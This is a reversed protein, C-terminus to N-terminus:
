LWSMKLIQPQTSDQPRHMPLTMYHLFVIWEFNYDSKVNLKIGGCGRYNMVLPRYGNRMGDLMSYKVYNDSSSGTIGSLFLLVPADDKDCEAPLNAPWDLALVGGDDLTLLERVDTSILAKITFMGCQFLNPSPQPIIVHLHSTILKELHGIKQSLIAFHCCYCNM